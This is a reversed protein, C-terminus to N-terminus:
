PDSGKIWRNLADKDFGIIVNNESRIIPTKVLLPDDLVEEKVSFDMFQLSRSAFRKSSRDIIAEEGVKAAIRDFEGPSLNKETVDRFHYPISREKCFREVKRTDACKKRGLIQLPKNM